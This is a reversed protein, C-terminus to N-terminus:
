RSFEAEAEESSLTKYKIQPTFNYWNEVPFAEFAGDPCQNFVFYSANEAIGGEKTGKFRCFWM